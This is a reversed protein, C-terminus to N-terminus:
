ATATITRANRTPLLVVKLAVVLLVVEDGELSVLLLLREMSRVGDLRLLLVVKALREDDYRREDDCSSNRFVDLVRLLELSFCVDISEDELPSVGVWSDDEM